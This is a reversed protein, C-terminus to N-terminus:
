FLQVSRLYRGEGLLRPPTAVLGRQALAGNLQGFLIHYMENAIEGQPVGHAACQLPLPQRLARELPPLLADAAMEALRHLIPQHARTYVPVCICGERAYGLATLVALEDSPCAGAAHLMEVADLLAQIRNHPLREWLPVIHAMAQPVCGAEYLRMFRYADCRDGDADGFSQLARRGDSLRNYSCLLRNSFATLGEDRAYAIILYDRGSPHVRSTTVLGRECLLDFMAGDLMAGCLLHYLHTRGDSGGIPSVAQLFDEWRNTLADAMAQVDQSFCSELQPMDQPLIVTSDLLIRGQVERLLGIRKLTDVLDAGFQRRLADASCEGAPMGCVAALVADSAAGLVLRPDDAAGEPHTGDYYFYDFLM